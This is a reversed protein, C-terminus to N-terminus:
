PHKWLKNFAVRQGSKSSTFFNGDPRRRTRRSREPWATASWNFFEICNLRLGHVVGGMLGLVLNIGHGAVLIVIALLFGLGRYQTMDSALQNFTVALQASALGLAFLRLYSLVDGFLKSVGTLAMLGDLLRGGWDALRTSRLPRDSSFLLIAAFGFVLVWKGFSAVTATWAAESMGAAMMLAGLMVLVWGVSSWARSSGRLNWATILNAITLHTVGILISLAMMQARDEFDLVRVRGLLSGPAPALGFYSGAMVGFVITVAVIALFLYRSRAGAPTKGLRKWFLLLAAAM